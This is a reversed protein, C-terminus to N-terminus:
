GLELRQEGISMRVAQAAHELSPSDPGAKRRAEIRTLITELRSRDTQGGSAELLGITLEGLFRDEELRGPLDLPSAVRTQVRAPPNAAAPREMEAVLSKVDDRALLAELNPRRLIDLRRFGRAVAGRMDAIAAELEVRAPEPWSKIESTGRDGALLAGIRSRVLGATALAGADPDPKNELIEAHERGHAVAEATRGLMALYEGRAGVMNALNDRYSRLEPNEASLKRIYAIGESSIELALDRRGLQWAIRACETYSIALDQAFELDHQRRALGARGYEISHKALELAQERHGNSQLSVSLNLFSESLGHLLDADEPIEDALKLRLELSRQYAALREQGSNTTLAVGNFSRSLAMRFRPEKPHDAALRARIAIAKQYAVNATRVDQRYDLDGLRHWVESQRELLAIDGPRAALTKDYLQAARLFAARSNDKEGLDSLIQGVRAQTAALDAVVGPDDGGRRILEEYFKLASELLERRLPRLGPM